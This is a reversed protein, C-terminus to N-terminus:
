KIYEKAVKSGRKVIYVGNAPNEVKVGQLNYYVAPADADEEVGEIGSPDSLEFGYKSAAKTTFADARPLAFGKFWEGSNGCIYINGALDWAIDYCNTGIGHNIVMVEQLAPAGDVYMLNYITFSAASSAIAIQKGDPSIRIGGGGRPKGGDGEFLRQTGTEDIYILAPQTNSPTGRYQCYWVGGTNVDYEVNTVQPAITYGSVGEIKTPTPLAAANGVNYENVQSNSTSGFAFTKNNGSLAILKLDEGSGKVDFGINPGALFAGNASYEYTTADLSGGVLMSTLKNNAVFDAHSAAYSIYDGYEASRTVFIRGDDAVRVRAPDSYYSIASHAKFGGNFALGGDPNVVPTMDANYIYVGTGHGSGYYGSAPITSMGETVYVTGFADSEMNNDVDVGRPHWYKDGHFSIPEAKVDGAVEIEWTYKGYDLDTVSIEATYAGKAKAGEALSAAEEGVENKVVINVDTADANLAYSIKLTGDVVEGKLAYAFPNATGGSAPTVTTVTETWKTVKGDVVLFLEIEAGTTKEDASLTLALEGHASASTYAAPTIQCNTKVEVAKDLGDTVDFLKVGQVLGEANIDPAVMLSRGAFKFYSENASAKALVDESMHALITAVGVDAPNKQIEFAPVAASNFVIQDDARPSLTINYTEGLYSSAMYTGDQNNRMLGLANGDSIEEFILRTNGSSATTAGTYILHGSELTGSYICSEGGIGNSWNGAFNNTWWVAVEGDPLGAEDKEWKYATMNAAGGYAQNAKNIGVLYGEATLAIDSIKLIDGVAATTGLTKVVAKTAIDYVYVYPANAADLALIFLKDDRLITRRITKGELEAIEAEAAVGMNYSPFVNYGAKGATSDPYNVYVVKPPEYTVSELFCIPYSTAAAKVTVITPEAVKYDAHSFEVTYDGPQLNKFVFAGNYNGDTKYTAVITEGQKLTVDVGNLPKYVDDTGARPNFLADSFKEHMDRVIGYIEGTTELPIGYYDAVGRGYALGEVACVDPNMARHRAPQYTHFYGEVLYGPVTHNLVGLNQHGIKVTGAGVLNDYHTWQTHRDLIRHNWGKEAMATCTAVDQLGGSAVGDYAFYLYNTTNGESSANSHVSIFMDFNNAEVEAAIESLRRNYANNSDDPRYDVVTQGEDNTKYVINNHDYPYPGSAIRSMVLNQTLDMANNVGDHKFGYGKLQYFLELCKWLNTNSEYFDTTDPNESSITEHGGLTAMHRNNPGWSGHGPNIYIRIDEVAASACLTTLALGAALIYKKLKM